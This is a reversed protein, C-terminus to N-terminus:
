PIDQAEPNLVICMQSSQLKIHDPLQYQLNYWDWRGDRFIEKIMVNQQIRNNELKKYLHGINSWNDYWFNINGRGIDWINNPDVRGSIECM